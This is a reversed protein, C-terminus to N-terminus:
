PMTGGETRAMERAAEEIETETIEVESPEQQAQLRAIASKM